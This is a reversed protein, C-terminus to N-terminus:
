TLRYATIGNKNRCGQFGHAFDEIGQIDMVLTIRWNEENTVLGASIGAVPEKIPVDM